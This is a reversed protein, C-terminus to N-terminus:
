FTNCAPPLFLVFQLFFRQLVFDIQLQLSFQLFTVNCLLVTCLFPFSLLLMSRSTVEPLVVAYAEWFLVFFFWCLVCHVRYFLIQKKIHKLVNLFVGWELPHLCGLLYTRCNFMLVCLFLFPGQFDVHFQFLAYM